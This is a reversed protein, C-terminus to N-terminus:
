LLVWGSGVAQFDLAEGVKILSVTLDGDIAESGFGDITVVKSGAVKKVRMWGNAYTDTGDLPPLTIVVPVTDATVAVVVDKPQLQADSDVVTRVPFRAAPVDRWADCGTEDPTPLWMPVDYTQKAQAFDGTSVNSLDDLDPRRDVDVWMSGPNAAKIVVGLRIRFGCGKLPPATLLDGATSAVYLPDGAAFGSFDLGGAYGHICIWGKAGDAISQLTLGGRQTVNIAKNDADLAITLLNTAGDAGSLYVPKCAAITSGTSNLVKVYVGGLPMDVNGASGAATMVLREIGSDDAWQLAGETPANEPDLEFRLADIEYIYFSNMNLNGLMPQVGSRALKESDHEELAEQVDDASLLGGSTDNPTVDIESAHHRHATITTPAPIVAAGLTQLRARTAHFGAEFDRRRKIAM